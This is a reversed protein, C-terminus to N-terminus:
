IKKQLPALVAAVAAGAAAGFEHDDNPGFSFRVCARAAADALGMATLVMPPQPSGTSCASGHSAAIGALDLAPLLSRGDVDPFALMLTNPLADRPTLTRCRVGGRDLAGAFATRARLMAAARDPQERVALEIALATAAALAPSVTGARLSREQGGGLLLPRLPGASHRVILVGSGRLGGAKHPSLAISDARLLVALPLRGLSQAADIHLPVRMNAALDAAGVVDQAAGVESQAHVLCVLGVPRAPAAIRARGDPDVSWEVTGRARAPVLVSPHELPALLVPLAPDGLGRVACNNAESGGSCFLVDDADVALAAAIRSRAAEVVAASRRGEAHASAPNGPCEREVQVFAELVRADVATGANHDIPFRVPAM